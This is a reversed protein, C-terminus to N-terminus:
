TSLLSFIDFMLTDTYENSFDVVEGKNKGNLVVGRIKQKYKIEHTGRTSKNEGVKSTEVKTLKAIPTQYLWADNMVFIVMILYIMGFIGYLKARKSKKIYEKIKKTILKMKKKEKRM